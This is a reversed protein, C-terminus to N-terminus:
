LRVARGPHSLRDQRQAPDITALWTDRDQEILAIMKGDPTWRPNYFWRDIRAPRTIAGTAVDGVRAPGIRLLNWKDDGGELWVLKGSDPSWSPGSGWDPDSDAGRSIASRARSAARPRSSTFRRTSRNTM